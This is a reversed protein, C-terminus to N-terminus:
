GAEDLRIMRVLWFCASDPSILGGLLIGDQIRGEFPQVLDFVIFTGTFFGGANIWGKIDGGDGHLRGGKIELSHLTAHACLNGSLPDLRERQGFYRGDFATTSQATAATATMATMAAVLAMIGAFLFRAPTTM